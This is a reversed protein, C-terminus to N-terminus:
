QRGQGPDINRGDDNMTRDIAHVRRLVGFPVLLMKGAVVLTSQELIHAVIRRLLRRPRERFRHQIQAPMMGSPKVDIEIPLKRQL